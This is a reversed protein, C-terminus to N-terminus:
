VEPLEPITLRQGVRIMDPSSLIGRNAEFILPFKSVDGYFKIAIAGLSDGSNVTYFRYQETETARQVM